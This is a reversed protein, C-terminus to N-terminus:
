NKVWYSLDLIFFLVSTIKFREDLIIPSELSSDLKRCLSNSFLVCSELTRLAKSFVEYALIFNDLVWSNLNTCNPPLVKTKILDVQLAPVLSFMYIM